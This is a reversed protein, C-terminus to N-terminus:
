NYGQIGTQFTVQNATPKGEMKNRQEKGFRTKTINTEDTYSM